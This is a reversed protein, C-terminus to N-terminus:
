NTEIRGVRMLDVEKICRRPFVLARGQKKNMKVGRGIEYFYGLNYAADDHGNKAAKLYWKSAQEFDPLVGKGKSLDDQSSKQRM